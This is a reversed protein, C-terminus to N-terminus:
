KDRSERRLSLIVPRDDITMAASSDSELFASWEADGAIRLSPLSLNFVPEAGESATLFQGCVVNILECLADKDQEMAFKDSPEAGLIGASIKACLSEPMIVTLTGSKIGAFSISAIFCDELPMAAYEKEAPEAFVFASQEAVKAFVESLLSLSEDTM